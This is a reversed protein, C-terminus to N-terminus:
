ETSSSEPAYADYVGFLYDLMAHTEPAYMGDASLRTARTHGAPPTAVAVRCHPTPEEDASVSDMQYLDIMEETFLREGEAQTEADCATFWFETPNDLDDEGFETYTMRCDGDVGASLGLNFIRKYTNTEPSYGFYFIITPKAVGHHPNVPPSESSCAALALILPAVLRM